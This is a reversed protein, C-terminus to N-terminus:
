LGIEKLLRNRENIVEYNKGDKSSSFKEKYIKDLIQLIDDFFGTENYIYIPKDYENNRKKEIATFLEYITGIGGPLFLLIDAKEIMNDTRENVSKTIIKEDCKLDLFDQENPSIGIVKRKNKKAIRYSIGMIGKSYTGFVLNNNKEFLSELVNRSSKIYRENIEESSSCFVAINM